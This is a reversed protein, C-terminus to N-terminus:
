NKLAFLIAKATKKLPVLSFPKNQWAYMFQRVARGYNKFRLYKEGFNINLRFMADRALGPPLVKKKRFLIIRELGENCRKIWNLDSDNASHLRRFLLPEYLVIADFRRALELIFDGDAFSKTEDFRGTAELCRRHFVLTPTLVAVESKFISHFINAHIFGNRQKYFFEVPVGPEKFNYGGTLSFGAAAHQQLATVQKELKDNAWLDDSDIFAVLEGKSKDLGINKIKGNVGIRGAKYFGIRKDHFQSVIEETDDQSGDDVIILEWHPYTQALVSEITEGILGARNYTPMIVSVLTNNIQNM